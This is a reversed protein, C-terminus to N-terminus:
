AVRGNRFFEQVSVGLAHALKGLTDARPIAGHELYRLQRVSIRAKMALADIRLGRQERLFRVVEHRYRM